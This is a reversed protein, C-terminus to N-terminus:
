QASMVCNKGAAKAMYVGEDARKLLDEITKMTPTYSAVGVSISGAWEGTGAKVRMKSVEEHVSRAAYMAGEHDTRPCIVLFEDGGLRCVTDDTRVSHSLKRALEQLVRDGANHGYNDNIHKFQDADIMMCSLPSDMELVESWHLALQHMAHRRNPLQTLVDTLAIHEMEKNAELLAQTREQVKQELTENLEILEKNRASVEHLLDKLAILVPETSNNTRREEEEFADSPSHGQNILSVQRAMNQDIDLIHYALWNVLFNLLTEGGREGETAIKAYLANLEHIFDQHLQVHRDFHRADIGIAMMMKQEETFHHRTYLVLEFFIAEIDEFVLKGGSLCDSLQNILDVLNKHQHDVETLGTKFTDGWQFSKM